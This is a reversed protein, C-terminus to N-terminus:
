PAPATKVNFSVGAKTVSIAGSDSETDLPYITRRVVRASQRVEVAYSGFFSRLDASGTAGNSFAVRSGNILVM